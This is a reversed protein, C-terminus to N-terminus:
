ISGELVNKKGRYGSVGDIVSVVPATEHVQSPQETPAVTKAKGGPIVVPASTDGALPQNEAALPMFDPTGCTYAMWDNSGDEPTGSLDEGTMPTSTTFTYIEGDTREELAPGCVAPDIFVESEGEIDTPTSFDETPVLDVPYYVVEGDVIGTTQYLLEPPVDDYVYVEGEGEFEPVGMTWYISPDGIEEVVEGVDELTRFCAEPPLSTYLYLNPDVEEGEYVASDDFTWCKVYEGETNDVVLEAEAETDSVIPTEDIIEPKFEVPTVSPLSRDELKELRPPTRGQRRPDKM